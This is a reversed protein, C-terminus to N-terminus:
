DKTMRVLMSVIRGLLERAQQASEAPAHGRRVLIHLVAASETASRRAMRHRVPRSVRESAMGQHVVPVAEQHVKAHALRVAIALALCRELHEGVVGLSAHCDACVTAVVCGIEDGATTSLADRRM